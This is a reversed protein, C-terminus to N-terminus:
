NPLDTGSTPTKNKILGGKGASSLLGVVLRQTRLKRAFILALWPTPSGLLYPFSPVSYIGEPLKVYSNFIAM